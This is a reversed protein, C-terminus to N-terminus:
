SEQISKQKAEIYSRFIGVHVNNTELQTDSIEKAHELYEVCDDKSEHCRENLLHLTVYTTQLLQSYIRMNSNELLVDFFTDIDPPTRNLPAVIFQIVKENVGTKHQEYPGNKGLHKKSKTLPKFINAPLTCKETFTITQELPRYQVPCTNEEGGQLRLRRHANFSRRASILRSPHTTEYNLIARRWQKM